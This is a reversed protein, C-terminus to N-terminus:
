LPRFLETSKSGKISTQQPRPLPQPLRSADRLYALYQVLGSAVMPTVEALVIRNLRAVERGVDMGTNRADRVYVHRMAALLADDSQRDVTYGTGARIADRLGDQIEDLNAVSFFRSSLDTGQLHVTRTMGGILSELRGGGTTGATASPYPNSVLPQPSAQPTAVQNMQDLFIM